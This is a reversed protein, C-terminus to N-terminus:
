KEHLHVHINFLDQLKLFDLGSVMPFLIDLGETPDSVIKDCKKESNISENKKKM